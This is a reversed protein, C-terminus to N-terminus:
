GQLEREVLAIRLLLRRQGVDDSLAEVRGRTECDDFAALERLAREVDHLVAQAAAAHGDGSDLMLARRALLERSRRVEAGVEVHRARRTCRPLSAAVNVLVDEAQNLYRATQARALRREIRQMSDPSLLVGDGEAALAPPAPGPAVEPPTRLVTFLALLAAAAAGAPRLWGFGQPMFLRRARPRAGAEDLRARVRAAFAPLALPPEAAHVPDRALLALVARLEDHEARCSGCGDLHHRAREREAGDLAGAALLRVRRRDREHLLKM